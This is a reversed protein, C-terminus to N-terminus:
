GRVSVKNNLKQTPEISTIFIYIYIKKVPSHNWLSYNFKCKLNIEANVFTIRPSSNNLNM